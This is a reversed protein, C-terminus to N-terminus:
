DPALLRDLRREDEARERASEIRGYRQLLRKGLEEASECEMALKVMARLTPARRRRFDRSPPPPIDDPMRYKRGDMIQEVYPLSVAVRRIGGYGTQLVVITVMVRM